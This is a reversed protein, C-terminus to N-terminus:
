LPRHRETIGDYIKRRTPARTVRARIVTIDTVLGAVGVRDNGCRKVNGPHEKTKGM